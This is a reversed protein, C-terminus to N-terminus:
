GLTLTTLKVRTESMSDSDSDSESDDASLPKYIMKSECLPPLQPGLQLVLCSSCIELAQKVLEVLGVQNSRKFGFDSVSVNCCQLLSM